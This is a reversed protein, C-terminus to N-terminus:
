SGGGRGDGPERLDGPALPAGPAGPAGEPGEDEADLDKLFLRHYESETLHRKLLGGALQVLEEIEADSLRPLLADLVADDTLKQLYAMLSAEDTARDLGFAIRSADFRNVFDHHHRPM